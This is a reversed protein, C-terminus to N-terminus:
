KGIKFIYDFDKDKYKFIILFVLIVLGVTVCIDAVNFIPFHIIDLSIFDIVYGRFIRDILNGTAGAIIVSLVVSFPMYYYTKPTRILVYVLLAAIILTVIIILLMKGELMSFSIGTNPAYYFSFVGNIVSVGEPADSLNNYALLKTLQDVGVLAAIVILSIIPRFKIKNEMFICM